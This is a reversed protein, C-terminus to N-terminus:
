MLIYIYFGIEIIIEYKEEEESMIIPEEAKGFADM